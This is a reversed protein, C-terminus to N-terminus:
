KQIIHFYVIRRRRRSRPCRLKSVKTTTTSGLKTLRLANL